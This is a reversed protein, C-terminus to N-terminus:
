HLVGKIAAYWVDGMHNYGTENPHVGDSSLMSATVFGTHMDVMAIHKGMAARAQIVAPIAANYAEVNTEWSSMALPTIQAVVLLAHADAMIIKDILSALRQPAQAVPQTQSYMDNTGILLLVIDPNADLAPSPVLSAIQDITWGSHGQNDQPFAVGAVTTPGNALSPDGVFTINQHATVADKFLEVRYGGAYQLGYTISDGFPLIKCPGGDDPCPSYSGAGAETVPSGGGEAGSPTADPGSADDSEPEAVDATSGAADVVEVGADPSSPETAGSNADFEGPPSTGAGSDQGGQSSGQTGGGGCQLCMTVSAVLVIAGAFLAVSSHARMTFEWSAIRLDGGIRSPAVAVQLRV